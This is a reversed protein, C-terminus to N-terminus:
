AGGDAEWREIDAVDAHTPITRVLELWRLEYGARKFLGWGQRLQDDHTTLALARWDANCANIGAAAETRQKRTVPTFRGLDLTATQM